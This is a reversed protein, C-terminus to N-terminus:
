KMTWLKIGRRKALQRLLELFQERTDSTDLECHAYYWDEFREENEALLRKILYDEEISRIPLPIGARILMRCRKLQEPTKVVQISGDFNRRLRM